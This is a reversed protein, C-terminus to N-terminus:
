LDGVGTCLSSVFSADISGRAKYEDSIAVLLASREERTRSSVQIAYTSNICVVDLDSLHNSQQFNNSANKLDVMTRQSGYYVVPILSQYWDAIWGYTCGATCGFHMVSTIDYETKTFRNIELKDHCKLVQDAVSDHVCLNETLVHIYRERDPRQQEHLMGLAHCINHLPYEDTVNITLPSDGCGVAACKPPLSKDYIFHIYVREKTRPIMRITTKGNIEDISEMITMFRPHKEQIEYPVVGKVWLKAKGFVGMASPM